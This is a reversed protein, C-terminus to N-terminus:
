TPQPLGGGAFVSANVTQGPLIEYSGLLGASYTQPAADSRQAGVNAQVTTRRNPTWSASLSARVSQPRGALANQYGIQVGITWAPDPRLTASLTPTYSGIGPVATLRLGVDYLRQQYTM